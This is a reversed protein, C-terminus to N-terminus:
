AAAQKWDPYFAVKHVRRTARSEEGLPAVEWEWSREPQPLRRGYLLDFQEREGGGRDLTRYSVDTVLSVACPLRTLDDLHADVVKRESGFPAGAALQSVLNISIVWDLEPMGALFGLPDAMTAASLDRWDHRINAHGRTRRRAPAIHARDVLVVREFHRALFEVPVDFLPGSGLVVVTRRQPLKAIMREIHSATKRTHPLWAQAQRRGRAWLGVAEYIHPRFPEPTAFYSTAYILTEALM